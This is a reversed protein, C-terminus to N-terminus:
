KQDRRKSRFKGQGGFRKEPRGRIAVLAEANSRSRSTLSKENLEIKKLKLQHLLM